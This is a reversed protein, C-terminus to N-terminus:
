LVIGKSEAFDYIAKEIIDVRNDWDNEKAVQKCKNIINIDDKRKLAYKINNIFEEHNKSPLVANPYITAEPIDTAITVRGYVLSEYMKLPNSFDAVQCRKFPLLNLSCFKYYKQLDNYSKNGLYHVGKPMKSVGFLKGVVVVDYLKAVKEILEIDVWNAMAGSFLMYGNKFQKVDEPIEININDNESFCANRCLHVNNHQQKRLTYLPASTTLLIDAKNIMNVEELENAEFNDLSDYLVIKSKVQNLDIYRHSWSSFYVDVEPVRKKFVDWNHWVTLNEYRDPRLGEVQTNDVWHISHGRAALIDMIHHPRQRLPFNYDITNAYAFIM